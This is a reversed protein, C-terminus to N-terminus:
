RGDGGTTGLQAVGCVVVVLLSVVALVVSGGGDGWRVFGAVVVGALGASLGVLRVVVVAGEASTAVRVCSSGVDGGGFGLHRRIFRAPALM